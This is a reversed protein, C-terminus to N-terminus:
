GLCWHLERGVTGKAQVPLYDQYYACIAVRSPPALVRHLPPHASPLHDDYTSATSPSLSFFVHLNTLCLINPFVLRRAAPGKQILALLQIVNNCHFLEVAFLVWPWTRFRQTPVYM